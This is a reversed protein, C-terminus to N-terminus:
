VGGTELHKQEGVAYADRLWARFEADIIADKGRFHHALDHRACAHTQNRNAFRRRCKRCTWPPRVACLM